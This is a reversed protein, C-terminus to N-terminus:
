ESKSLNKLSIQFFLLLAWPRINALAIFATEVAVADPVIHQDYEM